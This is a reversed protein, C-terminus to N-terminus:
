NQLFYRKNRNVPNNTCPFPFGGEISLPMKTDQVILETSYDM